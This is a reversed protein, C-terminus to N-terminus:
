ELALAIYGCAVEAVDCAIGPDADGSADDGTLAGAGGFAEDKKGHFVFGTYGVHDDRGIEELAIAHGNGAGTEEVDFARELDLAADDVDFRVADAGDVDGGGVHARVVEM